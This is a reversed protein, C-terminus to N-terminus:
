RNRKRVPVNPANLIVHVRQVFNLHPAFSHSGALRAVNIHKAILVNHVTHLYRKGYKARVLNRLHKKPDGLAEPNGPLAPRKHERFAKAIAEADYLLWAEIERRPILVVSAQAKAPAVATELEARLQAENNTDLDHAVAICHCGQDVLIKAWAGCKRRLKGCGNGVFRKFGITSPKLLTLTIERIVAVDSEDEAIIGINL